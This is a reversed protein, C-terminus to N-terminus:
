IAKVAATSALPIMCQEVVLSSPVGEYQIDLSGLLCYVSFLRWLFYGLKGYFRLSFLISLAEPLSGATTSPIIFAM